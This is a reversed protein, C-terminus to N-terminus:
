NLIQRNLNYTLSNPNEIEYIEYFEEPLKEARKIEIVLESIKEETSFKKWYNKTYIYIGIILLTIVILVQKWFKLSKKM